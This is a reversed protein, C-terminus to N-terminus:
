IIKDNCVSWIMNFFHDCYKIDSYKESVYQLGKKGMARARDPNKLLMAIKQALDDVDETKFLFGNEGEKILSPIGGVNAGILPKACAMAEILVRGMGEERSPLVFGYCNLFYPKLEEYFMPRIFKVQNRWAGLYKKADDQLLHGILRLEFDPFQDAIKEFAKVLIDVGKRYFPYGVFLLYKETRKECNEFYQTPIFDHFCFIKKQKYEKLSNDKQTQTLLKIGDSFFLSIRFLVKSVCIKLRTKLNKRGEIQMAKALDSSNLEIILKCRFITKLFAGVIGTFIPDYCVIVDIKKRHSLNATAKIIHIALRLRTILGGGKVVFGRFIFNGIVYSWYIKDCTWSYIEGECYESLMEFRDKFDSLDPRYIPGPFLYIINIKKNDTGM